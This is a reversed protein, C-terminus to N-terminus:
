KAEKKKLLLRLLVALSLWDATTFLLLGHGSYLWWADPQTEGMFTCFWASQATLLIASLFLGLAILLCSFVSSGPTKAQAAASGPLAGAQADGDPLSGEKARKRKVFYLIAAALFALKGVGFLILNVIRYTRIFTHQPPLIKRALFIAQDEADFVSDPWLAHTNTFTELLRLRNPKEDSIVPLPYAGGVRCRLNEWVAKVTLGPIEGINEWTFGRASFTLFLGPRASLTGNKYASDLEARVQKWFAEAQNGSGYLGARTAGQRLAWVFFDGYCNGDDGWEPAYFDYSLFLEDRIGTLSPSADIVAEFQERSVWVAEPNAVDGADAKLVQVAVDRFATDSRDNVTYVGYRRLNRWSILQNGALLIFWPILFLIATQVVKKAIRTKKGFVTVLSATILFPFLWFNDERLNMVFLLVVGAFVAIWVRSKKGSESFHLGIYLAFLLLVAPGSVSNRYVRQFLSVCLSPVAYILLIYLIFLLVPSKVAKKLAWVMTGAALVYFLIVLVTYPIRTLCSVATFASFSIGKVLTYENYPGLWGGQLLSFAHDMLLADDAPGQSFFTPAAAAIWIRVVTLVFAAAFLIVSIKHAKCYESLMPRM